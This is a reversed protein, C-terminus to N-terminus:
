NQLSIFSIQNAENVANQKLSRLFRHLEIKMQLEILYSAITSWLLSVVYKLIVLVM